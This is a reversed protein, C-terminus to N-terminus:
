PLTKPTMMKRNPNPRRKGKTPFMSEPAKAKENEGLQGRAHKIKAKVRPWAEDMAAQLENLKTLCAAPDGNSQNVAKNVDRFAAFALVFELAPVAVGPGCEKIMARAEQEFPYM